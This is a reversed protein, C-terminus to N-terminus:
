YPPEANDLPQSELDRPDVGAMQHEKIEEDLGEMWGALWHVNGRLADPIDMLKLATITVRMRSVFEWTISTELITDDHDTPDVGENLWDHQYKM